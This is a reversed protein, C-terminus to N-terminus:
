SPWSARQTPPPRSGPSPWTTRLLASVQPIPYGGCLSGPWEQSDQKMDSVSREMPLSTLSLSAASVGFNGYRARRGKPRSHAQGQQLGLSAKLRERMKGPEWRCQGEYHNEPGVPRQLVRAKPCKSVHLSLKLPRITPTDTTTTAASSGM